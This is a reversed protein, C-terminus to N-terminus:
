DEDTAEQGRSERGDGGEGESRLRGDLYRIVSMLELQQITELLENATEERAMSQQMAVTEVFLYPNWEGQDAMTRFAEALQRGSEAAEAHRDELLRSTRAQLAHYAPHAGARGIWYKANWYDGERRHVIAHLLCGTPQQEFFQVIEHAAELNDNWLHLAAVLLRSTDAEPSSPLGSLHAKLDRDLGPHWIHDPTLKPLATRNRMVAIFREHMVLGM